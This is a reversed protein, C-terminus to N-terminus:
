AEFGGGSVLATPDIGVAHLSKRWVEEPPSDLVLIPDVPALIWSGDKIERELQEPGWGAYGAYCHFRVDPLNCLRGLTARSASVYLGDSVARGEPDDYEPGYIVLGHEPQVPGGRRVRKEPDGRYSIEHDRCLDSLLLPSEHNVVVGLAGENTQQLLLVVSKRFNPDVLQPVAVLLSPALSAEIEGAMGKDHM